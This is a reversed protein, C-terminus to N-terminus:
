PLPEGRQEGTPGNSNHWSPRSSNGNTTPHDVRLPKVNDWQCGQSSRYLYISLFGCLDVMWQLFWEHLYIYWWAISPIHTMDKGHQTLHKPQNSPSHTPTFTTEGTGTKDSFLHSEEFLFSSILIQLVYNSESQTGTHQPVSICIRRIQKVLRLSLRIFVHFSSPIDVQNSMIIHLVKTNKM